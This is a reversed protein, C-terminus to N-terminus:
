FQIGHVELIHQKIETKPFLKPPNCWFCIAQDDYPYEYFGGAAKALEAESLENDSLENNQINEDPTKKDLTM